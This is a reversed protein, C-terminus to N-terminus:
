YKTSGAYVSLSVILVIVVLVIVSISIKKILSFANWKELAKKFYQLLNGM